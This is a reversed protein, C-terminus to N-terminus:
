RLRVSLHYHVSLASGLWGLLAAFAILALAEEASPGQLLFLAGYTSALLEAPTRLVWVLGWVSFLAAIGGLLGQLMGFWLFPRRIFSTTAGLLRSIDIEHRQTLIQLRITNFTVVILAFGLLSALAFVATRSLELLAHLRDVWASDLQVQEIGRWKMIKKQLTEFHAPDNSHVNVVFADPLPNEPLAQVMDALGSRELGALAEARSVFRVNAVLADDRLREYVEDIIAQDATKELFVSVEPAGSVGQALRALNDILTYGAAPLALAIGMVLVSLLTSAPHSLLRGLAQGLARMHLYMWQSM